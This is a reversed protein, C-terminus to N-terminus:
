YNIYLCVMHLELVKCTLIEIALPHIVMCGWRALTQNEELVSGVTSSPTHFILPDSIAPFIGCIVANCCTHLVKLYPSFYPLPQCLSQSRNSQNICKELLFWSPAQYVRYVGRDVCRRSQYGAYELRLRPLTINGFTLPIRSKTCSCRAVFYSTMACSIRPGLRQRRAAVSPILTRIQNLTKFIQIPKDSFTPNINGIFYGNKMPIIILLVM